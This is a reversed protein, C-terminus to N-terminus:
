QQHPVKLKSRLSLSCESSVKLWCYASIPILEAQERKEEQISFGWTTAGLPLLLAYSVEMAVLSEGSAINNRLQRKVLHLLTWM